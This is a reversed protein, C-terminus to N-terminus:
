LLSKNKLWIHSNWYADIEDPHDPNSSQSSCDEIHPNRYLVIATLICAGGLALLIARAFGKKDDSISSRIENSM